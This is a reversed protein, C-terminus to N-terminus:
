TMFLCIHFNSLGDCSWRGGSGLGSSPIARSSSKIVLSFYLFSVQLLKPWARQSVRLVHQCALLFVSMSRKVFLNTFLSFWKGCFRSDELSCFKQVKDVQADGNFLTASQVFGVTRTRCNYMRIVCELVRRRKKACVDLSLRSYQPFPLFVDWHRRTFSMKSLRAQITQNSREVLGTSQPHYPASTRTIIKEAEGNRWCVLDKILPFSQRKGLSSYLMTYYIFPLRLLLWRKLQFLFELDLYIMKFTLYRWM